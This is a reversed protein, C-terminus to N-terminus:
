RPPLSPIYSLAFVGRRTKPKRRFSGFLAVFAALVNLHLPETLREHFFRRMAGRRMLKKHLIVHRITGRPAARSTPRPPNSWPPQENKHPCM